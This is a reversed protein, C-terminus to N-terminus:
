WYSNDTGLMFLAMELEAVSSLNYHPLVARLMNTYLMYIKATKDAAVMKNTSIFDANPRGASKAGLTPFVRSNASKIQRLALSERTTFPLSKKILLCIWKSFRAIKVYPTQLCTSLTDQMKATDNTENWVQIM